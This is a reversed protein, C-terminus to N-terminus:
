PNFNTLISYASLTKCDLKDQVLNFAGFTVAAHTQM